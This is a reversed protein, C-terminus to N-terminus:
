KHPGGGSNGTYSSLSVTTGGSVTPDSLLMGEFYETGGSATVGSKLSPQSSGSVVLGSGGSSPTKFAYVTSGVTM